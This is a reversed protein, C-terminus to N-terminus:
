LLFPTFLPSLLPSPTNPSIETVDFLWQGRFNQFEHKGSYQCMNTIADDAAKHTPLHAATM